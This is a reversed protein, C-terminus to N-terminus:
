IDLEVSESMSFSYCIKDYKELIFVIGLVAPLGWRPPM